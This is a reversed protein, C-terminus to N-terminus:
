RFRICKCKWKNYTNRINGGYNKPLEVIIEDRIRIFLAFIYIRNNEKNIELKNNNLSASVNDGELGYITVKVEDTDSEVFKVNSSASNVEIDNIGNFEYREDLLTKTKDGFALLSVSYKKDKNVMVFVMVSILIIILIICAVILTIKVGKGVMKM